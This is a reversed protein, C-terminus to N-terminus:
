ADEDHHEGNLGERKIGGHIYTVPMTGDHTMQTLQRIICFISACRKCYRQCCEKVKGLGGGTHNGLWVPMKKDRM